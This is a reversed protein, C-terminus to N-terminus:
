APRRTLQSAKGVVRSFLDVPVDGTLAASTSGYAFGSVDLVNPKLLAFSVDNLPTISPGITARDIAFFFAGEM